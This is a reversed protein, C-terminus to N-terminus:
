CLWCGFHYGEVQRCPRPLPHLSRYRRNHHRSHYRRNYRYYISYAGTGAGVELIKDGKKLYKDIYTTTTIFEILHTKDKTLREDELCDSKYFNKVVTDINREM